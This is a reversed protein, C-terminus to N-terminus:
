KKTEKRRRHMILSKANKHGPRKSHCYDCLTWLNSMVSRGGRSVPVIHDVQLYSTSNCKRCRHNDRRKVAATIVSWEKLTGYAQKQTRRIKSVIKPGVRPPGVRVKKGM